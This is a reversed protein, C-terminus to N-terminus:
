ASRDSIFGLRLRFSKVFFGATGVAAGIYYAENMMSSAMDREEGAHEVLNAGMPGGFMAWGLGKLVMLAFLIPLTMGEAFVFLLLMSLIFM